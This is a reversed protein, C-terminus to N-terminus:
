TAVTIFESYEVTGSKDEDILIFLEEISGAQMLEQTQKAFDSKAFEEMDLAGSNDEDLECFM